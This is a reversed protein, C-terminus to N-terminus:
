RKEYIAQIERWQRTMIDIVRRAAEVDRDTVEGTRVHLLILSRGIEDVKKEVIRYYFEEQKEQVEALAEAELLRIKELLVALRDGM